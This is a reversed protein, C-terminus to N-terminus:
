LEDDHEDDDHGGAGDADDEEKRRVDLGLEWTPRQQKVLRGEPRLELWDPRHCPPSCRVAIQLEINCEM